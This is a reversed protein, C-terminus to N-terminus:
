THVKFDILRKHKLFFKVASVTHLYFLKLSRSSGKRHEHYVNFNTNMVTLGFEKARLFIDVDEMYLLFREDFGHLKKYVETKFALFCGHAFPVETISNHEMHLVDSSIHLKRNVLSLPTPINRVVQQTSGDHNLINPIALSCDKEQAFWEMFGEVEMSDFYIDPNIVLHIDSVDKLKFFALNHGAGFGINKGNNFIHTIESFENFLSEFNNKPSNDIIVLEKEYNIELFNNVVRKLIEINENYIVISASIKM